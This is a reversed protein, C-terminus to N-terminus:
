WSRARRETLCLYIQDSVRTMSGVFLPAVAHIFFYATILKVYLPALGLAEISQGAFIMVVGLAAYPISRLLLMANPLVSARVAAALAQLTSRDAREWAGNRGCALARRGVVDNHRSSQPNTCRVQAPMTVYAAHCCNWCGDKITM